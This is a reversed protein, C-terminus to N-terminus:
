ESQTLIQKQELEDQLLDFLLNEKLFMFLRRVALEDLYELFYCTRKYKYKFLYSGNYIAIHCKFHIIIYFSIYNHKVICTNLNSLACIMFM